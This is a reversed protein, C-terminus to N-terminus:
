TAAEEIAQTLSLTGAYLAKGCIAGYIGSAALNKIDEIDKIGGSATIKVPVARALEKYQGADIGSLMGDKEIDTFIINDVGMDAVRRAFDLYDTESHELWGSVRVKGGRADIGVAVKEGFDRIALRLFEPNKLAASGLIVRGAGKELYLSAAAMDRIGGGVEVPTASERILEFILAHNVPKGEKAGNLDVIHIFGPRAADFTRITIFSDEAVKNASAYDGKQLRVCSGDLIDIAPLILM